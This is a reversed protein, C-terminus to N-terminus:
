PGYDDSAAHAFAQCSHSSGGSVEAYARCRAQLPCAECLPKVPTCVTAGLEMLAQNFDGPFECDAVLAGALQWFLEVTAAVKVDGAITRLRALVRQVNGDVIPAPQNYAISAIAGATYRGIGPVKQELLSVDMPLVGDYTRVILKAAEHLRRARSYYGLGAWVKNVEEIDADALAEVTPWREMWRRYYDIVTKVQT